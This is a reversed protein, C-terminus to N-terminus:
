QAGEIHVKKDDDPKHAGSTADANGSDNDNLIRISNANTVAASRSEETVYVSRRKSSHRVIVQVHEPDVRQDKLCAAALPCENNMDPFCYLTLIDAESAITQQATFTDPHEPDLSVTRTLQRSCDAELVCVNKKHGDSDTFTGRSESRTHGCQIDTAFAKGALLGCIVSTFIFLRMSEEATKLIDLITPCLVPRHALENAAIFLRHSLM